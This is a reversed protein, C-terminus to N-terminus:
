ANAVTPIQDVTKRFAGPTMGTSAKFARNFPGVSAFGSEMAIVLIPWQRADPDALLHKAHDIRYRNVFRNFNKEQLPGTIARTVRYEPLGLTTALDAVKLEPTLFLRETEIKSLVRKAVSQEEASWELSNITRPESQSPDSAPTTRNLRLRLRILVNTLLICAIASVAQLSGLAQAVAPWTEALGAAVTCVVICGGCLALFAMRMRRETLNASSWGVIGERITLVLVASGFLALAETMGSDIRGFMATSIWDNGVSFRLLERGIMLGAVLGVLSLRWATFPNDRRFLACAVLWFGNCTACAGLAVLHQYNGWSAGAAREAMSIAISACFIAWVLHIPRKNPEFALAIVSLAAAAVVALRLTFEIEQM